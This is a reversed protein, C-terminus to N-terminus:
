SWRTAASFISIGSMIRLIRACFPGTPFIFFLGPAPRRMISIFSSWSSGWSATIGNRLRKWSMCFSSLTRGSFFCTGYIRQLMPRTQDGLWYAGAVSLLKFAKIQGTREVHPGRCLDLFEDGTKYISVEADPLRNIIELKFDENMNTFLAEAEARPMQTRTFPLDRNIIKQMVKEIKLLDEETFAEGKAFDYYFGNDIAPGIALKADPWLVKVAQALVHSCSHRLKDLDTKYEM